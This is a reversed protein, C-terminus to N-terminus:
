DIKKYKINNYLKKKAIHQKIKNNINNKGYYFIMSNNLIDKKMEEFEKKVDDYTVSNLIKDHEELKIIPEKYVLFRTYYNIFFDLNYFYSHQHNINITRKASDIDENTIKYTNFIEYIKYILIPINKEDTSTTISYYSLQPNNLDMYINFRISYIIGLKERLIRYFPGNEFTFLIRDLIQMRFHKKTYRGVKKIVYLNLLNNKNIKNNTTKIYIIESTLPRHISKPYTIKYNNNKRFNFATKLMNITKSIKNSPCVVGIVINKLLIHKKIFDYLKNINYKKVNNIGKKYDILYGYKKYMYRWIKLRFIYDYHVMNNNLEQIVAEKENKVISHDIYFNKLINAMLDIFFDLDEYLGTIYFSTENDTVYANTEAGRKKLENKIKKEDKYKESTFTGMLHEMYHTIQLENPKEHNSGLLIRMDIKTLKTKLPVVLLTIGNNLKIIKFNNDM